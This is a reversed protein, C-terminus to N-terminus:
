MDVAVASAVAAVAVAMTVDLLCVCGSMCLRVCVYVPVVLGATM